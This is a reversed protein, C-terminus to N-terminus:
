GAALLDLSPDTQSAEQKLYTVLRKGNPTFGEDAGLHENLWAVEKADVVDPSGGQYLIYMAIAKVFLDSWGSHNDATATARDIEILWDAEEKSIAMGSGRGYVLHRIAEVDHQDVAGPRRTGEKFIASSSTIISNFLADRAFAVLKDPCATAKFIINLLLRLETPDAIQGNAVIGGELFEADKDDITLEDNGQMFFDTLAEVYFEDWAPHRKKIAHELTLLTEAEIRDISGGSYVSRRMSLVDRPTVQGREAIRM